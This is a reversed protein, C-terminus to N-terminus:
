RGLCSLGGDESESSKVSFSMKNEEAAGRGRSGHPM